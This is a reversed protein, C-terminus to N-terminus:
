NCCLRMVEMRDGSKFASRSAQLARSPFFQRDLKGGYAFEHMNSKRLLVAGATKLRSAVGADQVAVRDKFLASAATTQACDSCRPSTRALSQQQIEPEAEQASKMALDAKVTISANRTRNLRDIRELVARTIEVPSVKRTRILESLESISLFIWDKTRPGSQTRQGLAAATGATAAAVSAHIFTRRSMDM